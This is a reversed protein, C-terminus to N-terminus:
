ATDKESKQGFRQRRHDHLEDDKKQIIDFLDAIIADRATIQRQVTTVYTQLLDGCGATNDGPRQSPMSTIAAELATRADAAEADLAQLGTKHDGSCM